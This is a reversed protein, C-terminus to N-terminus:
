PAVNAAELHASRHMHWTRVDRRRLTRLSLRVRTVRSNGSTLRSLITNYNALAPGNILIFCTVRSSWKSHQPEMSKLLKDRARQVYVRRTSSSGKSVRAESTVAQM